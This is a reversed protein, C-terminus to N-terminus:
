QEDTITIQNKHEIEFYDKGNCVMHNRVVFDIYALHYNAEISGNESDPLEIRAQCSYTGYEAKEFDSSELLHEIGNVDKYYCKIEDISIDIGLVKVPNGRYFFNDYATLSAQIASQIAFCKDNTM